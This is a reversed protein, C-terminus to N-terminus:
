RNTKILIRTLSPINSNDSELKIIYTRSHLQDLDIYGNIIQGETVKEGLTSYITYKEYSNESVNIYIGNNFPNPYINVTHEAIQKISTKKSLKVVQTKSTFIEDINASYSDYGDAEVQITINTTDPLIFSASGKNNTYISMGGVTVTGNIIPKSGNNVYITLENLNELDSSSYNAYFSITGNTYETIHNIPVNSPEMAWSLASPSTDDTFNRINNQGPFPDGYVTSTTPIGDAEIIDFGQHEPNANIKYRNKQIYNEDVHYILLGHYPIFSDVGSQQRNELIFFEGETATNIKYAVHSETSKDLVVFQKNNLEEIDIWKFFNKSHANIGAPSLGGNNWSGSAMLDWYGLDFSDGGSGSYDTDYYDPLGLIHGFEHCIVGITIPNKDKNSSLEPFIGYDYVLVSDYIVSLHDLNSRHSWICDDSAGAEEGYGAHLVIIGDVQGNNNNDFISFDIGQKEAEDIADRVLSKPNLDDGNLDNGGYFSKKNPLTVWHTITTNLILEGLSNKMYFDRFSGTGNYDVGNLIEDFTDHPISFKEDQFEALIVLVNNVGISPFSDSDFKRTASKLTNSQTHSIEKDIIQKKSFQLGKKINLKSLSGESYPIGSPILNGNIDHIAYVFVEESNKLITYGDKTEYWNSIANGRKYLYIKTGDPQKQELLFPPIHASNDNHAGSIKYTFVGLTIIIIYIFKNM